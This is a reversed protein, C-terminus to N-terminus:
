KEGGSEDTGTMTSASRATQMVLRMRETAELYKDWVLFITELLRRQRVVLAELQDIQESIKDDCM